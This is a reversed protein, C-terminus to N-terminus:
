MRAIWPHRELKAAIKPTSYFSVNEEFGQLEAYSVIGRKSSNPQRM